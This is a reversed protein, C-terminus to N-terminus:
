GGLELLLRDRYELPSMRDPLVPMTVPLTYVTRSVLQRHRLLKEYRAIWADLDLPDTYNGEGAPRPTVLTGEGEPFPSPHPSRATDGTEGRVREGVPSLLNQNIAVEQAVPTGALYEAATQRRGDATQTAVMVLVTAAIGTLLGGLGVFCDRHRQRRRHPIDLIRRALPTQGTPKLAALQTEIDYMTRIITLGKTDKTGKHSIIFEECLLVFLV